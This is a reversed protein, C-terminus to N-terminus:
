TYACPRALSRCVGGLYEWRHGRGDGAGTWAAPQGTQPHPRFQGDKFLYLESEVGVWMSGASDELLSAVQGGPPLGHGLHISTVRGNIIHDLSGANSVWITGDKGALVGVAAPGLGELASFTTVRPDRFSDIGDTTVVWFIGERDEFFAFIGDGSLGDARGYHEVVNGRIRFLGKDLTGVWLSGQHDFAMTEVSLKSGDLGPTVFAKVADGILRGLGLGPEEAISGVWLTGDPGRSLATVGVGVLNSKLAEIPPCKPSAKIGISFRRRAELGFVETRISWYPM